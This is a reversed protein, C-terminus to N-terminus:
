IEGMFIQNRGNQKARYLREDAIQILSDISDDPNYDTSDAIGCSFSCFFRGKNSEFPHTNFKELITSIREKAQHSTRGPLVIIFEEGGFRGALEYSRLNELVVRAFFRLVDDGVLHGSTDNIRKFHDMDCLAVSFIEGDQRSKEVIGPISDFIHKRNYLGTLSDRLSATKLKERVRRELTVDRQIGFHGAIKGDETYICIYDGEVMMPSGDFRKENSNIHLKGRDFLERWLEKGYDLDHEFFDAPTLGVLDEESARYQHILAQNVRVIKQNMFVDDLVRNKDVTDDWQFPPDMMMFFFGDLSQRFLLDLLQDNQISHDRGPNNRDTEPPIPFTVEGRYSSQSLCTFFLFFEDRRDSPHLQIQFLGDFLPFNGQLNVPELDVLVSHVSQLWHIPPAFEDTHDAIGTGEIPGRRHISSNQFAENIELFQFDCVHGDEDYVAKCRAFPAQSNLLLSRYPSSHTESIM